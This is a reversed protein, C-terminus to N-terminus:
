ASYVANDIRSVAVDAAQYVINPYTAVELLKDKAIKEIERRDVDRIDDLVELSAAQITLRLGAADLRGPDFDVEGSFARIGLTPNHGVVSLIGTAFAQVTFRSRRADVVYRARTGAPAPEARAVGPDMAAIEGSSNAM